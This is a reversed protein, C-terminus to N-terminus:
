LLRGRVGVVAEFSKCMEIGSRTLVVGQFNKLSAQQEGSYRHGFNGHNDQVNNNCTLPLSVAQYRYLVLAAAQRCYTLFTPICRM